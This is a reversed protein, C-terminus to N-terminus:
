NTINMIDKFQDIESLVKELVEMELPKTLYYNANNQNSLEIDKEFSSTSLIIVPIKRGLPCKKIHKLVEHGTKKPLNIDLLIFDPTKAKIYRGKKEVFDIAEVGDKVISVEFKYSGEALAETTLLIDGENDEVLLIHLHRM